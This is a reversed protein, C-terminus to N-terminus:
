IGFILGHLLLLALVNACNAQVHYQRSEVNKTTVEIEREGEAELQEMIEYTMNVDVKDYFEGLQTTLVELQKSLDKELSTALIDVPATVNFTFEVIYRTPTWRTNGVQIYGIPSYVTNIADKTVASIVLKTKHFVKEIRSNTHNIDFRLKVQAVIHNLISCKSTRKTHRIPCGKAECQHQNATCHFELNDLGYIGNAKIKLGYLNFFKMDVILAFSFYKYPVHRADDSSISCKIATDSISNPGLACQLCYINYFQVGYYSFMSWSKFYRVPNQGATACKESINTNQCNNMCDYHLKICPRSITPATLQLTCAPNHLLDVILDIGANIFKEPNIEESECSISVNWPDYATVGHCLACFKNRYNEGTQLDVVPILNLLGHRDQCQLNLESDRQDYPCKAIKYVSRSYYVGDSSSTCEYIENDSKRLDNIGNPDCITTYDSCCDGYKSCKPDCQCFAERSINGCRGECSRKPRQEPHVGVCSTVNKECTLNSDDRTINLGNTTTQDLHTQDIGTHISGNTQFGDGERTVEESNQLFDGTSERAAYTMHETSTEGNDFGSARDTVQLETGATLTGRKIIKSFRIPNSTSEGNTSLDRNSDSTPRNSKWVADQTSLNQTTRTDASDETTHRGNVIHKNENIPTSLGRYALSIFLAIWFKHRKVELSPKRMNTDVLRKNSVIM